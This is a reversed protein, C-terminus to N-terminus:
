QNLLANKYDNKKTKRMSNIDGCGECLKRYEWSLFNCKDCIYPYTKKWLDWSILKGM